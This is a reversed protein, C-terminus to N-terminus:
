LTTKFTLGLFGRDSILSPTGNYVTLAGTTGTTYDGFYQVYKLDFRYRTYLDLGLGVSYNGANKNGGSLVAANGDLGYSVTLPLYLDGGPFAQYWVPTLNLALQTATRTVHDIATYGDRGKFYKEGQSVKTWGSSTLEAAYNLSDYVPTSGFVGVANLVFHWTDGRAGATEGEDPRSTVAAPDSFLPMNHRYSADMGVSVGGIQKALSLGYLDIGSAYALYYQRTAAQTLVQPLKDSFNRYYLGVTGELWEPSWRASLGWDGSNKPTVDQGHMLRILQGTPLAGAILSDAGEQLMDQAGFYTGAEPMRMREWQLYYQAAFSLTETAQLQASVQGLPRYLEKAEIGPTAAGKALDLPAQAYTIGHIAGGSLLGEGWNVTYRGARVSLPVGVDFNGFVFADMVEGSPGRYLRETHDSLGYAPVGNEINNETALSTNDFGHAYADDYWATGSVRFGYKDQYVLDFESLLDLRNTVISGNKFNRDGDDFNPNKLIASDQGQVRTGLNYRFTNDWRIKFDSNGVDIDFAQANGGVCAAAVAAAIATRRARGTGRQPHNNKM